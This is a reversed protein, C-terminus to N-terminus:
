NFYAIVERQKDPNKLLQPVLLNEIYGVMNVHYFLIYLCKPISKTAVGRRGPATARAGTAVGSNIDYKLM